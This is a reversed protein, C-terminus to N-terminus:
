LQIRNTSRFGPEKISESDMNRLVGQIWTEPYDKFRHKQTSESDMNRSVGQIGTGQYERFRTGEYEWFRTGQYERFGHEKTSGSNRNRPVGQFENSLPKSGLKM